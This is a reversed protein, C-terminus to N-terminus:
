HVQYCLPMVYVVYQVVYEWYTFVPEHQSTYGISLLTISPWNFVISTTVPCAARHCQLRLSQRFCIEM